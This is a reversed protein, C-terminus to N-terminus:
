LELILSFSVCEYRKVRLQASERHERSATLFRTCLEWEKLRDVETLQVLEVLQLISISTANAQVAYGLGLLHPLLDRWALIKWLIPRSLDEDSEYM